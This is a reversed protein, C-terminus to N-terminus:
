ITRCTITSLLKIMALGRYTYNPVSNTGVYKKKRIKLITLYLLYLKFPNKSNISDIKCKELLM